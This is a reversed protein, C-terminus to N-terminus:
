FEEYIIEGPEGLDGNEPLPGFDGPKLSLSENFYKTLNKYNNNKIHTKISRFSKVALLKLLEEDNEVNFIDKLTKISNIIKMRSEEEFADIYSTDIFLTLEGKVNRAGNRELAIFKDENMEEPYIYGPSTDGAKSDVSYVWNSLLDSQANISDGAGGKYPSPAQQGEGGISLFVGPFTISKANISIDGGRKGDMPLNEKEIAEGDKATYTYQYLFYYKRKGDSFLNHDSKLDVGVVLPLIIADKHEITSVIVKQKISKLNSTNFIPGDYNKAKISLDINSIELITDFTSIFDLDENELKINLRKKNNIIKHCGRKKLLPRIDKETIPNVGRLIIEGEIGLEKLVGCLENKLQHKKEYSSALYIQSRKLILMNFKPINQSLLIDLSGKYSIKQTLWHLRIFAHLASPSEDKYSSLVRHSMESNVFFIGEMFRVISEHIDLLKRADKKNEFLNISYLYEIANFDNWMEEYLSLYDLEENFSTFRIYKNKFINELDMMDEFFNRGKMKRDSSIKKNTYYYSLLKTMEELSIDKSMKKIKIGTNGLVRNVFNSIHRKNFPYEKSFTDIYKFMLFSNNKKKIERSLFRWKKMPMKVKKSTTTNNKFQKDINNIFDLYEILLESEEGKKGKKRGLVLLSQDFVSQISKEELQLSCRAMIQNLKKLLIKILKVDHSKNVKSFSIKFYEELPKNKCDKEILNLTNNINDETLAVLDKNKNIMELIDSEHILGSDKFSNMINLTKVNIKKSKILPSLIISKKVKSLAKITETDEIDYLIQSLSTWEEDAIKENAFRRLDSKEQTNIANNMIKKLLESSVIKSSSDSEEILSQISIAIMKFNNEEKLSYQCATVREITNSLGLNIKAKTMNKTSILNMTAAVFSSIDERVCTQQALSLIDKTINVDKSILIKSSNIIPWFKSWTFTKVKNNLISNVAGTINNATAESLIQAAKEEDIDRYDPVKTYSVKKEQGCGLLLASILILVRTLIYHNKVVLV